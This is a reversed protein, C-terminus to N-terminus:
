AWYAFQSLDAMTKLGAPAHVVAPIANVVIAATAIDGQITPEFSLKFGPTGLVIIADRPHPEHMSAKFFLEIVTKGYIKGTAIQETGTVKDNAIVPVITEHVNDLVWGLKKALLQLSETLGMHRIKGTDVREQYEDKSLGAGIKQQFPLRRTAANQVREVKISTVKECIGSVVSPLFDMLFGPNVGTSLVTANYEKALADIEQATTPNQEWPYSLEECTTVVSVGHALIDNLQKQLVNIYSSTAVVAIDPESAQIASHIDYSVVPKLKSIGTLEGLTKGVKNPDLDVAAVINAHQREALIRTIELGIPGLGVQIIRIPKQM